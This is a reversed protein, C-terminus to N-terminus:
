KYRRLGPLTHIVGNAETDRGAGKMRDRLVHTTPVTPRSRTSGPLWGSTSPEWGVPCEVGPRSTEQDTRQTM